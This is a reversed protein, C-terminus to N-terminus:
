FGRSSTSRRPAKKRVVGGGQSHFFRHISLSAHEFVLPWVTGHCVILYAAQDCDLTAMPVLVKTILPMDSRAEPFEFAEVKGMKSKPVKIHLVISTASRAANFIVALRKQCDEEGHWVIQGLLMAAVDADESKMVRPFKGRVRVRLSQDEASPAVLLPRLLKGPKSKDADSMRLSKNIEAVVYLAAPLQYLLITHPESSEGISKFTKLAKDVNM